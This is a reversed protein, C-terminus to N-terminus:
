ESRFKRHCAKCAAVTDDFAQRLADQDDGAAATALTDITAGLHKAAGSFEPWHQWIDPKAESKVTTSGRPFMEPIMTSFAKLARIHEALHPRMPVGDVVISSVARLHRLAGEMVRVRYTVLDDTSGALLAAPVLLLLVPLWRCYRLM